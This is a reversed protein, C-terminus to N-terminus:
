NDAFFGIKYLKTNTYLISNFVKYQFAKVYPESFVIHPLIFVKELQDESLNFYAKLVLSKKKFFIHKKTSIFM